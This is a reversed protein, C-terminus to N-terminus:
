KLNPLVAVVFGIIALIIVFLILIVGIAILVIEAVVEIVVALLLSVLVLIGLIILLLGCGLITKIGELVNNWEGTKILEIGEGIQNVKVTIQFTSDLWMWVNKAWEFKFFSDFQNGLWETIEHAMKAIDSSNKDPLFNSVTEGVDSGVSGCSTMSFALTFITVILLFLSIKRIM